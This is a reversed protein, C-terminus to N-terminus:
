SEPWFLNSWAFCDWWGADRGREGFLQAEGRRSGLFGAAEARLVRGGNRRPNRQVRDGDQKMMMMMTVMMTEYDGM